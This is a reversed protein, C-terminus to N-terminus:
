KNTKKSRILPNIKYIQIFALGYFLSTLALRTASHAMTIFAFCFFAALFVKEIDKRRSFIMVPALILIILAILGSFGHEALMRTQETHAARIKEMKMYQLRQQVAQGPGVGLLPNEIFLALDSKLLDIRGSTYKDTYIEAEIITNMNAPEPEAYSSVEYRKKLVNDTITNTIEFVAFLLIGYLFFRAFQMSTNSKYRSVFFFVVFMVIISIFASIVGGRSFTLLAAVLIIGIISYDLILIRFMGMNYLYLFALILLAAGYVTVVQNPGFGGTTQFSAGMNFEIQSLEPSKLMSVVLVSIVPYIFVLLAKELDKMSLKKNLFYAVSIFICLPGSLNFSIDQRATNIDSFDILIVSPILLIFYLLAWLPMRKQDFFLGLLLFLIVSYKGFEWILQAHLLRFLVEAGAMYLAFIHAEGNRNQYTIILAIGGILIAIQWVIAIFPFFVAALALIIHIIIIRLRSFSSVSLLTGM